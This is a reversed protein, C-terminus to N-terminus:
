LPWLIHSGQGMVRQGIGGVWGGWNNVTWTHCKDGFEITMKIYHIFNQQLPGLCIINCYDFHVQIYIYIHVTCTGNKTEVQNCSLLSQHSTAHLSCYVKYLWRNFVLM